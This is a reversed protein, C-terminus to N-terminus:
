FLEEEDEDEEDDDEEEGDGRLYPLQPEPLYVVMRSPDTNYVRWRLRTHRERIEARCKEIYSSVPWHLQCSRRM